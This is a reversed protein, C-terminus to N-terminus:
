IVLARWDFGFPLSPGTLPGCLQCGASTWIWIWARVAAQCDDDWVRQLSSCTEVAVINTM